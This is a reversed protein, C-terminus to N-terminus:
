NRRRENIYDPNYIVDPAWVAYGGECDGLDEGAWAFAEALNTSLDGFLTNGSTTYGNTFRTWNQLDTSKAAEIHSGFVYYTGDTDKFISPDHVSVHSKNVDASANDNLLTGQIGGSLMLAVAILTSLIKKFKM